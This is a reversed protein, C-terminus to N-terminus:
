SLEKYEPHHIRKTSFSYSRNLFGEAEFAPDVVMQVEHTTDDFFIM